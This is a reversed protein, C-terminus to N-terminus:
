VRTECVDYLLSIIVRESLLFIVDVLRSGSRSAPKGPPGPVGAKRSSLHCLLCKKISHKNDTLTIYSGRRTLNQSLLCSLAPPAHKDDGTTHGPLQKAQQLSLPSPSQTGYLKNNSIFTQILYQVEFYHFHTEPLIQRTERGSREQTNQISTALVKRKSSIANVPPTM